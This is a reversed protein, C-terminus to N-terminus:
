EVRKTTRADEMGLRMAGIERELGDMEARLGLGLIGGDRGFCGTCATVAERYAAMAAAMRQMEQRVMEPKRGNEM